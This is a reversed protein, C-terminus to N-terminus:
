KVGALGRSFCLMDIYVKRWLLAFDPAMHTHLAGRMPKTCAEGNWHVPLPTAKLPPVSKLVRDTTGVVSYMAYM